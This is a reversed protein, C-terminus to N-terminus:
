IEEKIVFKSSLLIENFFNNKKTLDFYKEENSQIVNLIKNEDFNLDIKITLNEKQKLYHNIASSKAKNKLKLGKIFNPYRVNEKSIEYWSNDKSFNDIFLINSNESIKEEQILKKLFYVIDKSFNEIEKEQNDIQIALLLKTKEM